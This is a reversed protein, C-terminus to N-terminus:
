QYKEDNSFRGSNKSAPSFGPISADLLHDYKITWQILYNNKVTRENGTDNKGQLFQNKVYLTM